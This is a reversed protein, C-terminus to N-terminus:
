WPWWTLSTRPFRTIKETLVTVIRGNPERGVRLKTCAADEYLYQTISVRGDRHAKVKVVHHFGERELWELAHKRDEPYWKGWANFQKATM